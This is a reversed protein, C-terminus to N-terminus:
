DILARTFEIRAPDLGQSVIKELIAEYTSRKMNPSRSLVWLYNRKPESVVVYEYNPELDIVWYKGAGIGTWRLWSPLFTVSLKANTISDKVTAVGLIDKMQGNKFKKCTNHVQIKGNPLPTYEATAEGCKRQFRNPYKAIEYWKGAYRNLDVHEVTQLPNAEVNTVSLSLIMGLILNKM